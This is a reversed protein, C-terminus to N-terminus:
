ITIQVEKAKALMKLFGTLGDCGKSKILAYLALKENLSIKANVQCIPNFKKANDTDILEQAKTKTNLRETQGEPEIDKMYAATNTEYVEVDKADTM